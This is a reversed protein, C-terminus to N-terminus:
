NLWRVRIILTKNTSALLISYKLLKLYDCFAIISNINDKSLTLTINSEQKFTLIDMRLTDLAAILSKNNLMKVIETARYASPILYTQYENTDLISVIKQAVVNNIEEDSIISNTGINTIDIDTDAEIDTETNIKADTDIKANTEAEMNTNIEANINTNIDKSMNESIDKMFHNKEGSKNKINNKSNNEIKEDSVIISNAKVNNSEFTTEVDIDINNKYEHQHESNNITQKLKHEHESNNITQEHEHEHEHKPEQKQKYKHKPTANSVQEINNQETDVNRIDLKIIDGKSGLLEFKSHTNSEKIITYDDLLYKQLIKQLQFAVTNFDTHKYTSENNIFLIYM